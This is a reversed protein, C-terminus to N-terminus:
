LLRAFKGFYQSAAEAYARSAEDPDGFLGLYVTKRHVTIQAQWQGVNRNWSVGKRGSTNHSSLGNNAQNESRTALRLNVLRNDVKNGNIHDIEARPWVGHVYLWALRHAQYRRRDLGIQLYGEVGIRGAAEGVRARGRAARWTFVGTEQDYQLLMRVQDLTIM